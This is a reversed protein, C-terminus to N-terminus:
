VPYRMLLSDVSEAARLQNFCAREDLRLQTARYTTLPAVIAIIVLGVILRSIVTGSPVAEDIRWRAYQSFYWRNAYTGMWLRGGIFAVAAAWSYTSIWGSYRAILTSNSAADLQADALLPSFKFIQMLCVLALVDIALALWFMLWVGRWAAWAWPLLLGWINVAFRPLTGKQIQEFTTGYYEEGTDVFTGVTVDRDSIERKEAGSM